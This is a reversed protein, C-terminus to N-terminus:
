GGTITVIVVLSDISVSFNDRPIAAPYISFSGTELIRKASELDTIYKMSEDWEVVKTQGAPITLGHFILVTASDVVMYVASDRTDWNKSTDEEILLQFIVATDLNNKVSLYFGLNDIDNIKDSVEKFDGDDSLDVEIESGSIDNHNIDLVNYDANPIIPVTLVVTGTVICGTLLVATGLIAAATLKIKNTKIM